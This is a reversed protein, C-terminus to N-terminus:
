HPLPDIPHGLSDARPMRAQKRALHADLSLAGSGHWVFLVLLVLVLASFRLQDGLHLVGGGLHVMFVAGALVPVQVAAGVRTAFGVAMLVGGFLHAMIIVHVLLGIFFPRQHEVLIQVLQEREVIFSLGKFVLGVGLYIRLLSMCWDRRQELWRLVDKM